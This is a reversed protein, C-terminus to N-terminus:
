DVFRLTHDDEWQARGEHVLIAAMYSAIATKTVNEQLWQGLSGAPPGDRSTGAAVVRGRFQRLLRAYQAASVTARGTKGFRIRLDDRATIEYSFVAGQAKTKLTIM